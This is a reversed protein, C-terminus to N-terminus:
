LVKLRNFLLAFLLETISHVHVKDSDLQLTLDGVKGGGQSLPM